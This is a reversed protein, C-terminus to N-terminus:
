WDELGAARGRIFQLIAQVSPGRDGFSEYVKSAHEIEDAVFTLENRAVLKGRSSAVSAENLNTM